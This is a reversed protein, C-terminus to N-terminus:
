FMLLMFTMRLTNEGSVYRLISRQFWDVNRFSMHGGDKPDYLLSSPSSLGKKQIFFQPLLIESVSATKSVNSCGLHECNTLLVERFNAISTFLQKNQRTINENIIFDFLNTNV